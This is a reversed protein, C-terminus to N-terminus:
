GKGESPGPGDREVQRRMEQYPAVSQRNTEQLSAAASANLREVAADFNSTIDAESTQIKEVLQNTLIDFHERRSAASSDLFQRLQDDRAQIESTVSEHRASIQTEATTVQADFHSSMEALREEMGLLSPRLGQFEAVQEQVLTWVIQRMREETVYREDQLFAHLGGLTVPTEGPHQLPPVRPLQPGTGAM